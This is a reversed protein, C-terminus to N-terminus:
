NGEDGDVTMEVPREKRMKLFFYAAPFSREDVGELYVENRTGDMNEM